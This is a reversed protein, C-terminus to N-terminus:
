CYFKIQSYTQMNRLYRRNQMSSEFRIDIRCRQPDQNKLLNPALCLTLISVDKYVFTINGSKWLSVQFTFRGSERSDRLTVQM